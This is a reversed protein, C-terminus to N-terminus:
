VRATSSARSRRAARPRRVGGAVATVATRTVSGARAPAARYGPAAEYGSRARGRPWPGTGIEAAPWGRGTRRLLNREYVADFRRTALRHRWDAALPAALTAVVLLIAILVPGASM